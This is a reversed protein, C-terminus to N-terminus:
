KIRDWNNTPKNSEYYQKIYTLISLVSFVVSNRLYQNENRELYKYFAKDNHTDSNGCYRILEFSQLVFMPFRSEKKLRFPLNEERNNKYIGGKLFHFMAPIKSVDKDDFERPMYSKAILGDFVLELLSRADTYKGTKSSEKGEKLLNQLKEEAAWGFNVSCFDLLEANKNKKYIFEKVLWSYKYKQFVGAENKYVVTQWTDFDTNKEKALSKLEKDKKTKLVNLLEGKAIGNQLHYLSAYYEGNIITVGHKGEIIEGTKEFLEENKIYLNFYKELEM